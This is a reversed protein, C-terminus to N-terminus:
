RPSHPKLIAFFQAHLVHIMIILINTLVKFGGVNHFHINELSVSTDLIGLLYSRLKAGFGWRPRQVHADRSYQSLNHGWLIVGRHVEEDKFPPGQGNEKARDADRIGSRSGDRNKQPEVGNRHYLRCLTFRKRTRQCIPHWKGSYHPDLHQDGPMHHMSDKLCQLIRLRM